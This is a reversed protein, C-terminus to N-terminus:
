LLAKLDVNGKLFLNSVLASYEKRNPDDPEDDDNFTAPIIDVQLIKELARGVMNFEVLDLVPETGKGNTRRDLFIEEWMAATANNHSPDVAIHDYLDQSTPLKPWPRRGMKRGEFLRIAVLFTASRPPKTQGFKREHAEVNKLKAVANYATLSSKEADNDKPGSDAETKSKVLELQKYGGPTEPDVQFVQAELGRGKPNKKKDKKKSKNEAWYTM